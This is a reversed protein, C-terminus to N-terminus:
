GRIESKVNELGVLANLDGMIRGEDFPEENPARDEVEEASDFDNWLERIKNTLNEDQLFKSTDAL